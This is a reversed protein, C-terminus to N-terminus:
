ARDGGATGFRHQFGLRPMERSAAGDRLLIGRAAGVVEGVVILHSALAADQRAADLADRPLAVLLEYDEGDGLAHEFAPIGDRAALEHAAPAIPLAAADIVAGVGSAAALRRLDIALGDSLDIAAHAGADALKTAVAVRPEFDLHRGLASGGLPGTVLLLDGERAASRLLSGRPHPRGLLTVDIVLGQSSRKTDGGAIQLGAPLAAALLGDILATAQERTTGPPLAVAVFAALPTAAMAALDSLSKSIAKRGAARHGCEAIRFDIGELLMDQTVIVRSSNPAAGVDVIAADDGVGLVIAGSAQPLRAGLLELFDSEDFERPGMAM